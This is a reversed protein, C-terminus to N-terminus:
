IRLMFIIFVTIAIGMSFGHEWSSNAIANVSQEDYCM